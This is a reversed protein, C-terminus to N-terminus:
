EFRCMDAPLRCVCEPHSINQQPGSENWCESKDTSDWVFTPFIFFTCKAEGTNPESRKHTKLPNTPTIPTPSICLCPGTFNLLHSQLYGTRTALFHLSFGIPTHLGCRRLPGSSQLQQLDQVKRKGVGLCKLKCGHPTKVECSFARRMCFTERSFFGKTRFTFRRWTVM